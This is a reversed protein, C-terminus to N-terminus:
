VVHERFAVATAEARSSVGIRGYVRALRRVVEEDSVGLV